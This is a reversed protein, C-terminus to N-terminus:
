ATRSVEILGHEGKESSTFRKGTALQVGHISSRVSATRQIPWSAVDGTNMRLLIPRISQKEPNNKM